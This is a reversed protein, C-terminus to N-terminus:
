ASSPMRSTTPHSSNLRTSKRDGFAEYSIMHEADTGGMVPHVCERYIGGHILVRTGPKAEKAARGITKYPHQASGDNGDSAEPANGNVHLERDYVCPIEWFEFETGDPLLSLLDSM